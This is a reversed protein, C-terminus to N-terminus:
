AMERLAKGGGGIAGALGLDGDGFGLRRGVSPRRLDADILLVRAAPGRALAAALNISTLTKGDNTGPSTVGLVRVGRSQQLREVNLRLNQYQEAALSGPPALVAGAHSESAHPRM